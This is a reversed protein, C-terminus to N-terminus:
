AKKNKNKLDEIALTLFSLDLSCSKTRHKKQLGVSM